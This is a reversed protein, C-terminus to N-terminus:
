FESKKKESARNMNKKNEFELVGVGFSLDNNIESAM